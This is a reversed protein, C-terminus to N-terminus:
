QTFLEVGILYPLERTCWTVPYKVNVCGKLPKWAVSLELSMGLETEGYTYKETWKL